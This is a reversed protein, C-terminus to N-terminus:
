VKTIVSNTLVVKVEAKEKIKKVLEVVKISAVSGTAAVLVKWKKDEKKDEKKSM